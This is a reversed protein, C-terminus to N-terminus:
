VLLLDQVLIHKKAMVVIVFLTGSPRMAHIMLLTGAQTSYPIAIEVACWARM